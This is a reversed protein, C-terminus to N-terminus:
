DAERFSHNRSDAREAGVEALLTVHVSLPGLEFKRSCGEISKGVKKKERVVVEAKQAKTQRCFM